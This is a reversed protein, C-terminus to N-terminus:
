LLGLKPFDLYNIRLLCMSRFTVIRFKRKRTSTIPEIFNAQSTCGHYCSTINTM